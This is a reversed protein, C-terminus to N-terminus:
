IASKQAYKEEGYEAKQEQLNKEKKLHLQRFTPTEGQYYSPTDTRKEIIKQLKKKSQLNQEISELYEGEYRARGALSAISDLFERDEESAQFAGEQAFQNWEQIATIEYNDGRDRSTTYEILKREEKPYNQIKEPIKLVVTKAAQCIQPAKEKIVEIIKYLPDLTERYKSYDIDYPDTPIQSKLYDYREILDKFFLRLCLERARIAAYKPDKEANDTIIDLDNKIKEIDVVAFKAPVATTKNITIQQNTPEILSCSSKNVNALIAISTLCVLKLKNNM